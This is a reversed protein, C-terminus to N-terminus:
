LGGPCDVEELVAAAFAKIGASQRLPSGLTRFSVIGRENIEIVKHYDKDGDVYCKGATIQERKLPMKANREDFSQASLHM